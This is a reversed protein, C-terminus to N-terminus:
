KGDGGRNAECGYFMVKSIHREDAEQGEDTKDRQWPNGESTQGTQRGLYQGM